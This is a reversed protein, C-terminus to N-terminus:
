AHLPPTISPIEKTGGEVAVYVTVPVSTFPQVPVEVIVTVTFGCGTTPALADGEAFIQLPLLTVSLPLPAADYVQLPPTELPTANM